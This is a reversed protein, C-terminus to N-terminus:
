VAESMTAEGQAMERQQRIQKSLFEADQGVHYFRGSGWTHMWNLGLFYLGQVPSVGRKQMPTGSGDFAPLRLWHYDTKFGTAWVVSTINAAKFDLRTKVPPAYESHLNDDAPAVIGNEQIYKEISDTIRRAVEDAYDLNQHLDDHFSLGNQDADQLRGYLQMGQEAFIRLNLDRGGDRGTVYHNTAKPANKGEPHQDITTHYYGMDDLWKVVDQGRYRRNVRPAQGVCLHVKRGALHLDEAIQCGSQGTGVVLVDGPPLQDPNKYDRTHVHTITAPMKAACPLTFPTHYAGCAVVVQDATYTQSPTDVQFGTGTKVVNTVPSSFAVPPKLFDFYGQLYAVIEDKVMFGNPDDGPYPYGPLQCQWNPTVLCFADWRQSQWGDAFTAAKELILHDIDRQQLWYSMALGAQGAGIIIVPYAADRPHTKSHVSTTNM